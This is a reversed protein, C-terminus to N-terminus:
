SYETVSESTTEGGTNHLALRELLADIEALPEGLKADLLQTRRLDGEGSV